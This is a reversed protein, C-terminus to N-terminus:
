AAAMIGAAFQRKDFITVRGPGKVENGAGTIARLIEVVGAESPMKGYLIGSPLSNIDEIGVYVNLAQPLHTLMPRDNKFLGASDGIIVIQGPDLGFRDLAWDLGFAKSRFSIDICRSTEYLHFDSRGFSKLVNELLFRMDKTKCKIRPCDEYSVTITAQKGNKIIKVDHEVPNYDDELAAKVGLRLRLDEIVKDTFAKSLLFDDNLSSQYDTYFTGNEDYGAIISSFEGMFIMNKRLEPAIRKDFVTRMRDTTRGTNVVFIGGSALFKEIERIIDDGIAFPDSSLTRDFDAMILRIDRGKISDPGFYCIQGNEPAGAPLTSTYKRIEDPVSVSFWLIDFDQCDLGRSELIGSIVTKKATKSLSPWLKRNQEEIVRSVLDFLASRELLLTNQCFRTWLKELVNKDIIHRRVIDMFLGKVKEKQESLGAKEASIELRWQRYLDLAGTFAEVYAGTPSDATDVVRSSISEQASIFRTEEAARKREFKEKVQQVTLSAYKGTAIYREIDRLYRLTWPAKIFISEYFLSNVSESTLALIGEVILINNEPDLRTLIDGSELDIYAMIGMESSIAPSYVITHKRGDIYREHSEAGRALAIRALDIQSQALRQRQRTVQNFHPVYIPKGAAFAKMDEYYRKIEYKIFISLEYGLSKARALRENKPILYEDMDLRYIAPMEHVAKDPAKDLRRRQSAIILKLKKVFSSAFYSKGSASYGSFGIMVPKNGEKQINNFWADAAKKPLEELARSFSIGEKVPSKQGNLAVGMKELAWSAWGSLDTGKSKQKCIKLLLEIASGARM